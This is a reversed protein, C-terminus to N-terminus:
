RPPEKWGDLIMPVLCFKLAQEAAATLRQALEPPVSGTPSYRWESSWERSAQLVAEIVESRYHRLSPALLIALDLASGGLTALDHQYRRPHVIGGASLLAKLSCEIAYGALYGANDPRKQASLLCADFFHRFAASTFDETM